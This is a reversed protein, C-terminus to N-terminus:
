LSRGPLDYNHYLTTADGQVEKQWMLDALEEDTPLSKAIEHLRLLNVGFNIGYNLGMKRQNTSTEWGYRATATAKNQNLTEQAM